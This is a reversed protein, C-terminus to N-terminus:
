GIRQDLNPDAQAARAATEAAGLAEIYSQIAVQRAKVANRIDWLRENEASLESYSMDRPDKPSALLTDLQSNSM